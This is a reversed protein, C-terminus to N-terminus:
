WEVIYTCSEAGKKRCPQSDDHKVSARAEFRRAMTTIIGRDFDCPYPNPCTLIAKNAGEVKQYNYHGIGELMIQEPPRSPDFLIEGKANRHNMHYAVDISALAKEVDDIEPPFKANEPIKRGIQYLSNPGVKESITYFANLWAQQPYWHEFDPVVEELGNNKLIKRANHSFVGLGDVVSMITGGNVEMGEEMAKFSVM